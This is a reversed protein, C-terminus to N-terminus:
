GVVRSDLNSEIKRVGDFNGSLDDTLLLISLGKEENVQYLVKLIEEKEQSNLALFPEHCVLLDPDNVISIALSIKAKKTEERQRCLSEREGELETLRLTEELREELDRPMKTVTLKFRLAQLVTKNEPLPFERPLFSVEERLMRKRKKPSLRVINRDALVIQGSSPSIDGTLVDFLTDYQMTTMDALQAIDGKDLTFSLNELLVEEDGDYVSLEAIQVIKSM